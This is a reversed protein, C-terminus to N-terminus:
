QISVPLTIIVSTGGADESFIEMAGNVSSVRSSINSLGMGDIQSDVDFGCGDDKVEICLERSDYQLSIIMLKAQAHKLSNNILECVARYIIVEHDSTFRENKLNTDFIIKTQVVPRLANIFNNLARMVGFNNLVHPSLNNSIEKISKISLMVAQQANEIIERQLPDSARSSLASISLRASSLLPGLGDHLEKAFRQRQVEEAQIVASLVKEESKRRQWERMEIYTLVKKIMFVGLAFCFSTVLNVWVSIDESILLGRDLDMIRLLKSMFFHSTTFCMLFLAITILIWSANYKTTKILRMAVSAAFFQLIIAIFLLILLIM